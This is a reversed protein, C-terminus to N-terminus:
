NMKHRTKEAFEQARWISIWLDVEGRKWRKLNDFRGLTHRQVKWANGIHCQWHPASAMCRASKHLLITCMCLQVTACHTTYHMLDSRSLICGQGLTETFICTVLEVVIVVDQGGVYMSMIKNKIAFFSCMPRRTMDFQALFLLLSRLSAVTSCLPRLQGRSVFAPSFVPVLMSM